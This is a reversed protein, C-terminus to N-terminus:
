SVEVINSMKYNGNSCSIHLSTCKDEKTAKVSIGKETLLQLIRVVGGQSAYHAANWGFENVDHLIEPCVNLIHRCMDYKANRCSIHLITCKEQTTEKLSLMHDSLPQLIRIDGGQAAYHAANWGQEDVSKLNDYCVSLLHQCIEYRGCLCAIQLLTEKKETTVNLTVGKNKLLQLINVNGGKVAYHVPRWGFKNLSDIM